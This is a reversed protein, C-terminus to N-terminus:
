AKVAIGVYKGDTEAVGFNSGTQAVFHAFAMNDQIDDSMFLGGSKLANWIIAYGFVRGRYSKDSDYHAIDVGQPFRAVARHLGNRDPERVLHWRERLGEPVAIGVFPENGVGPYPRDVSVLRGDNAQMAALFALSSWGYAVGTEIAARAATLRTAAYILDVYGPGGMKVGSRSARVKADSLIQPDIRPLVADPSITVGLKSLVSPLPNARERAWHTAETRLEPTDLNPRVSRLMRQGFDAWRSPSRLYFVLSRFKSM